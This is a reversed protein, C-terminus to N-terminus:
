RTMSSVRQTGGNGSLAIERASKIADDGIEQYSSAPSALFTEAADLLLPLTKRNCACEWIVLVKWGAALLQLRCKNDRERNASFKKQWYDVHSKPTSALRCGQHRHWFCGHIFIVTKYKPLVIDPKGPLDARYLRYRYGRAHLGKRVLLELGTNCGKIRSMVESRKEPTFVDTSSKEEM